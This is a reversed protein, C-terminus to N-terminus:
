DHLLGPVPHEVRLADLDDPEPDIAIISCIQVIASPRSTDSVSSAMAGVLHDLLRLATRM